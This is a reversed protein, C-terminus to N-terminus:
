ECGGYYSKVQDPAEIYGRDGLSSFFQNNKELSEHARAKAQELKLRDKEKPAALLLDNLLSSTVFHIRNTWLQLVNLNVRCDAEIKLKYPHTLEYKLVTLRLLARFFHLGKSENVPELLYVASQLDPYGRASSLRPISEFVNKLYDVQSSLDEFSRPTKITESAAIVKEALHLFRDLTIGNRAAFASALLIRTQSNEPHKEFSEHLLRIADDYNKEEILSLARDNATNQHPARKSSSCSSVLLALSLISFYALRAATRSFFAM